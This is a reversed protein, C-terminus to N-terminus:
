RTVEPFVVFSGELLRVVSGGPFELELDYLFTTNRVVGLASSDEPSISLGITGASGGLVIGDGVTLSFVTVPSPFDFRVQMRADVGTLDVPVGGALYTLSYEFSAGAFCDLDLKGPAQM